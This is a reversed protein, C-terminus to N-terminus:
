RRARGSFVMAADGFPERYRELRSRQITRLGQVPEMVVFKEAEHGVVLLYHDVMGFRTWEAVRGARYIVANSATSVLPVDGVPLTLSHVYLSPLRVPVLVPRGSELERLIAAEDMRVASAVLGNEAALALLEAMSYGAEDAPPSESYIAAGSVAGPGRWYNIVSALAHAGCSPRATQRDQVVPLVLADSSIRRDLVDFSNDGTDRAFATVDPNPTVACNASMLALLLAGLAARRRM